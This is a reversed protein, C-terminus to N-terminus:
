RKSFQFKKRAGPQGSKKREKERPDRRLHGGQKLPVRLESDMKELARAIGLAVAGAQGNPGGGLVRVAIDFDKLREVTALPARAARQLQETPFYTELDRGNISWQGSGPSLRVRASARKRRGTGLFPSETSTSM